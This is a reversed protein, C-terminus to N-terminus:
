QITGALADVAQTLLSILLDVDSEETLPCFIAMCSWGSILVGRNALFLWIAEHVQSRAEAVTASVIQELPQPADPDM